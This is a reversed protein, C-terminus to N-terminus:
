EREREREAVVERPGHEPDPAPLAEPLPVSAPVVEMERIPEGIDMSM